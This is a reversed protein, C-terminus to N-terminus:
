QTAEAPREMSGRRVQQRGVAREAIDTMRFTITDLLRRKDDPSASSERVREMQKRLASLRQAADSLGKEEQLAARNEERYQKYEEVRRERRLMDATNKIEQSKGYEDYFREISEPQGPFRAVFGRVFPVDSLDGAPKEKEAGGFLRGVRDGSELAWQGLGGGYGRALNEIKSPSYNFMRGLRKATETTYATFQQSPAVDEKGRSVIRRERFMSWNAMNEILPVAATPVPNPLTSLASKAFDKMAKPDNKLTWDLVREPLTGFLVGLEFPKPIRWVTHQRSWDAKQEATM